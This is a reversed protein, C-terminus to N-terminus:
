EIYHGLKDKILPIVTSVMIVSSIHGHISYMKFLKELLECLIPPANKICDSNFHYLPDTKDNKLKRIAEKVLIPTIQEVKTVSECDIKTNLHKLVTMLNEKDDISNYLKEYVNAFHIELNNTVGYIMSSVTPATKRLKRIEKFIDGKDNICADLITNKRICEAMRRNKRIQYHYVNRTKKIIQHLVTNVPRGASLWISHWFMANDKFPQVDKNWRFISSKKTQIKSISPSPLCSAASLKISDLVEILFKDCEHIHCEDKCHVNRCFMLNSPIDIVQLKHELKTKFNARQEGTARKWSPNSQQQKTLVRKKPPM